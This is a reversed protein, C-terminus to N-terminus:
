PISVQKGASHEYVALTRRVIDNWDYKEHIYGSAAAKRIEVQEPHDSLYQLMRRLDQESNNQFTEGCDGIVSKCEPIDSVLCCNGWSMAELLAVPMGELNSPLVFAYANSYLEALVRDRVFDTFVINPNGVAKQKLLRIYNGSDSAGGAIVLKQKLTLANYADMLLHLNKEPVLRGVYLFYGDKQLGFRRTIEEAAEQDPAFAGNPILHTQRGYTELFYAQDRQNLVIVEDALRAAIKEGCKICVSALGHKWKNRKWDLGHITAVCRKGMLKPLWLMFCPGEAHYHVVDYRGFAARFSASFSATIAAFGRCNVTPVERVTIGRADGDGEGDFQRGAIHHGKRNFCTVSHGSAVMRSALEEVVVEIGGERSLVHKHGIMAINM